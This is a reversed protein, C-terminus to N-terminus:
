QAKEVGSVIVREREAEGLAEGTDADFLYVDKPDVGLTLRDGPSPNVDAGAQVVVSGATHEV